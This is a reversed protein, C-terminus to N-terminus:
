QRQRRKIPARLSLRAEDLVLEPEVDSEKEVRGM